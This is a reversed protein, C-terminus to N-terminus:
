PCTHVGWLIYDIESCTAKHPLTECFNPSFQSLTPQNFNLTRKEACSRSYWLRFQNLSTSFDISPFFSLFVAALSTKGFMVVRLRATCHVGIGGVLVSHNRRSSRSTIQLWRMVTCKWHPSFKDRTVKVKSRLMWVRGLSPGLVDETHIQRLDTWRNGLFCDCVASFCFRLCSVTHATIVRTVYLLRGSDSFRYAPSQLLHSGIKVRRSAGVSVPQVDIM